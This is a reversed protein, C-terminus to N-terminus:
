AEELRTAATLGVIALKSANYVTLGPVPCKGPYRTMGTSRAPRLGPVRDAGASTGVLVDATRPDWEAQSHLADLVAATWAFGLTGGCGIVLARASRHTM